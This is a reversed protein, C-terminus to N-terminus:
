KFKLPKLKYIYDIGSKTRQYGASFEYGERELKSIISALRTIYNRLCQNRTIYGVTLLQNLVRNKQTEKM